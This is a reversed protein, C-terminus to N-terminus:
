RRNEKRRAKRRSRGTPTPPWPDAPIRGLEVARRICTHAVKRYRGATSAALAQGEDGVGLRREVDALLERDLEGLALGSRELWRQHEGGADVAGVPPLTRRLYARLGAPAAAAKPDCVLPVFRSLAEVASRRTRPAWDQWEGALWLRAWLHVQMESPAPAWSEPERTRRDFREGDQQAILLRSRRRDAEAKTRFSRSFEEGDVVWRVLWPKRTRAHGTRNQIAWIRVEQVPRPRM